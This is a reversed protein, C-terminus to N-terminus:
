RPYSPRSKVKLIQRLHRDTHGWHYILVQHMNRPEPTGTLEFIARMDADSNRVFTLNQERGRLFFTLNDKGKIFGTPAAIEAAKHPNPEMIFEQYYSDPRTTKLLEPQPKNRAGISLERSWVIEWLALHEVIEAISWRDPAERFSWQEPTLNETERVVADRTRILQGITSQKDAATWLKEQGFCRLAACLWVVTFFTIIKM